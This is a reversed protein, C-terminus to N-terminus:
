PSAEEELIEAGCNRCQFVTLGDIPGDTVLDHDYTEGCVSEDAAKTVVTVRDPTVSVNAYGTLARLLVYSGGAVYVGFGEVIWLTKGKGIRVTDGVEIDDASM